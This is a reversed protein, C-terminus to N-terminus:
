AARRGPKGLSEVRYREVEAPQVHWDRGIKDAGFKGRAIQQRLTAPTVGLVQAAEILTLDRM